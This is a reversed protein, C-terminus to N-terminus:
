SDGGDESAGLNCGMPHSAIAGTARTEIQRGLRKGPRNICAIIGLGDSSPAVGNEAVCDGNANSMYDCAEGSLCSDFHAAHADLAAKSVSIKQVNEPDGPPRHCIYVKHTQSSTPAPAAPSEVVGVLMSVAAALM